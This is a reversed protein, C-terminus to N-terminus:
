CIGVRLQKLKPRLKLISAVRASVTDSPIAFGIGASAGSPSIIVTNMGIVESRLPGM